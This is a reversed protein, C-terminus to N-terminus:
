QCGKAALVNRGFRQKIKRAQLPELLEIMESESLKLLETGDIANEKFQAIVDPPLELDNSFVAIKQLRGISLM